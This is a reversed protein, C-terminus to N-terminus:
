PRRARRRCPRRRSWRGHGLRQGMRGAALPHHDLLEEVSGLEREEDDAVARGTPRQQRGLVELPDEVAAAAGVGAPHARVGRQRPQGGARDLGHHRLDDCRGEGLHPAEACGEDAAEVDTQGQGGVPRLDDLEVHAEAVGVDLRHEGQELGREAHQQPRRGVAVERGHGVRGEGVAGGDGHHHGARAIGLARAGPVDDHARLREGDLRVDVHDVGAGGADSAPSTVAPPRTSATRAVPVSTASARALAYSPM